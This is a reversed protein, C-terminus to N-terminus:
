CFISCFPVFSLQSNSLFTNTNLISFPTLVEVLFYHQPATCYRHPDPVQKRWPARARPKGECPEMYTVRLSCDCSVRQRGGWAPHSQNQEIADIFELYEKTRRAGITIEDASIWIWHSWPQELFVAIALVAKATSPLPSFRKGEKMVRDALSICFGPSCIYIGECPYLFGETTWSCYKKVGLLYSLTPFPM